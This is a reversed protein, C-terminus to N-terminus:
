GASEWSEAILPREVGKRIHLIRVQRVLALHAPAFGEARLVNVTEGPGRGGYGVTCGSLWLENAKEDRLVLGLNLDHTNSFGTSSGIRIDDSSWRVSNGNWALAEQFEGFYLRSIRWIELSLDSKGSTEVIITENM